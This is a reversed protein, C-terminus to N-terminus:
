DEAQVDDRDGNLNIEDALVERAAQRALLAVLTRIAGDIQAIRTDTPQALSPPSSITM